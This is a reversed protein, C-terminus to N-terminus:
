RSQVCAAACLLAVILSGTALADWRPSSPKRPFVPCEKETRPGYGRSTDFLRESPRVVRLPLRPPLLVILIVLFPLLRSATSVDKVIGSVSVDHDTSCTPEDGPALASELYISTQTDSASLDSFGAEHILDTSGPRVPAGVRDAVGVGLSRVSLSFTERADAYYLCPDHRCCHTSELVTGLSRGGTTGRVGGLADGRRAAGRIRGRDAGGPFDFPPGQRERAGRSAHRPRARRRSPPPHTELARLCPVPLCNAVYSRMSCTSATRVRASDAPCLSRRCRRKGPPRRAKRPSRAATARAGAGDIALPAPFAEVQAAEARHAGLRDRLPDDILIRRPAIGGGQDAGRNM